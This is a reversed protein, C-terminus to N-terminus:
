ILVISILSNHVSILYMLLAELSKFLSQTLLLPKSRELSTSHTEIPQLAVSSGAILTPPIFFLEEAQGARVQASRRFQKEFGWSQYSTARSGKLM